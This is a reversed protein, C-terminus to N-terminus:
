IFAILGVIVCAAGAIVRALTGRRTGVLVALADATEPPLRKLVSWEPLEAAAGEPPTTRMALLALGALAAALPWVIVDGPWMGLARVTLLLGLVVAAFAGTAVADGGPRL